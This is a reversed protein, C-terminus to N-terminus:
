FTDTQKVFCSLYCNTKQHGVDGIKFDFKSNFQGTIPVNVHLESNKEFNLMKILEISGNSLIRIYETSLPAGDIKEDAFLSIERCLRGLPHDEKLAIFIDSARDRKATSTKRSAKQYGPSSGIILKVKAKSQQGLADIAVVYFEYVGNKLTDTAFIDGAIPAM